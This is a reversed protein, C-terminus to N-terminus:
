HRLTPALTGACPGGPAEDPEVVDPHEALWADAIRHTAESGCPGYRRAHLQADMHIEYPTWRGQYEGPRHRPAFPPVAEPHARYWLRAARMALDTREGVPAVTAAWARAAAALDGEPHDGPHFPPLDPAVIVADATQRRRLRARATM